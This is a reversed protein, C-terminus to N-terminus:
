YFSVQHNSTIQFNQALDMQYSSAFSGINLTAVTTKGGIDVITHTLIHVSTCDLTETKNLPRSITRRFTPGGLIVVKVTNISDLGTGGKMVLRVTNTTMQIVFFTQFTLSFDSMFVLEKSEGVCKDGNKVADGVAMNEESSHISLLDGKVGTPAVLNAQCWNRAATYNLVDSEHGFAYICKPIMGSTASNQDEYWTLKATIKKSLEGTDYLPCQSAICGLAWALLRIKTM